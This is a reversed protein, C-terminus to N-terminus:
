EITRWKTVYCQRWPFQQKADSQFFLFTESWISEWSFFIIISKDGRSGQFLDLVSQPWCLKPHSAIPGNLDAKANTHIRTYKFVFIYIKYYLRVIKKMIQLNCLFRLSRDLIDVLRLLQWPLFHSKDFMNGNSNCFCHSLIVDINRQDTLNSSERTKKFHTCFTLKSQKM